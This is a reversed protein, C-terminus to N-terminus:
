IAGPNATVSLSASRLRLPSTMRAKIYFSARVRNYTKVFFRVDPDVPSRRSAAQSPCRHVGAAVLHGVAQHNTLASRGGKRM